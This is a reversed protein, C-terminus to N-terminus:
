RNHHAREVHVLDGNISFKEIFGVSVLNELAVNLLKRLEGGSRTTIGSGRRLTEFKIAYPERHTAFYGLLWTALGTPLALRQKWEIHTFQNEGFLKLLDPAIRVSWKPLNTGTEEDVWQFFPIMSISVGQKLRNSSVALATAQMRSLSERLRMYSQGSISWGINKCFNYPTFEVITGVPVAKAIHLLQLWVTEDDQRLEEGTYSIKGDGVVAIEAQRLYVRPTKRNKANFLASRLIENPLCRVVEAWLPLQRDTEIPKLDSGVTWDNSKEKSKAKLGAVIPAYPNESLNASAM